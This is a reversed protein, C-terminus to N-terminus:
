KFFGEGAEEKIGDVIYDLMEQKVMEADTGNFDPSELMIAWGLILNDLKDLKNKLKGAYKGLIKNLEERDM